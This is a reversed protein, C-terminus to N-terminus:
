MMKFNNVGIAIDIIPKADMNVISTSGIHMIGKYEGRLDKEINLKESYYRVPWEPNYKVITIREM